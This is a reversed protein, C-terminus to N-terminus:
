EPPFIYDAYAIWRGALVVGLWASLSVAALVKSPLRVADTGSQVRHLAFTAVVAVFLFAFKLGFIPNVFYRRPRAIVFVAGSILLVPLSWWTWPLLRRLMESVTQNPMGLGLVKLNIMVISAMVAAIALIHVTQVIPPLGWVNKLLSVIFDHLPGANIASALDTFM